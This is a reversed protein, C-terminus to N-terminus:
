GLYDSYLTEIEERLDILDLADLHNTPAAQTLTRPAAQASGKLAADASASPAVASTARISSRLFPTFRSEPPLVGQLHLLKLNFQLKLFDLDSSNEATKLAHGLLNFVETHSDGERAVIAVTKVFHLALELRDYDQKLKAFDDVVQAEELVYLRDSGEEGRRVLTVAIFHTPELVGGGFRKKSKLASKAIASYVAGSSSILKLILDAEGYKTKSLLIVRDKLQM